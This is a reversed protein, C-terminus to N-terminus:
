NKGGFKLRPCEEPMPRGEMGSAPAAGGAIPTPWTARFASPARLRLSWLPRGLRLLQWRVDAAKKELSRGLPQPLARLGRHGQTWERPSSSAQTQSGRSPCLRHRHQTAQPTLHPSCHRSRVPDPRRAAPCRGPCCRHNWPHSLQPPRGALGQDLRGWPRLQELWPHGTSWPVNQSSRHFGGPRPAHDCQHENSRVCSCKRRRSCLRGSSRPWCTGQVHLVLGVTPTRPQKTSTGQSVRSNGSWAVAGDLSPRETWLEQAYAACPLALATAANDRFLRSTQSRARGFPPHALHAKSGEM